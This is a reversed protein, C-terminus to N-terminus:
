QMGSSLFLPVFVNRTSHVLCQLLCLFTYAIEPQCQVMINDTYAEM